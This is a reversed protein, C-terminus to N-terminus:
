HWLRAADRYPQIRGNSRGHVCAFTKTSDHQSPRLLVSWHSRHSGSTPRWDGCEHSLRDPVLYIDMVSVVVQVDRGRLLFAKKEPSVVTKYQTTANPHQSLIREFMPVMAEFLRGISDYLELPHLNNIYSKITVHGNQDISIDSPIWHSDYCYGCIFQPVLPRELHQFISDQMRKHIPPHESRWNPIKEENMIRTEDSLYPFMFPDILAVDGDADPNVLREM